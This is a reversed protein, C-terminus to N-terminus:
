SSGNYHRGESKASPYHHACLRQASRARALTSRSKALSVCYCAFSHASPTPDPRSSLFLQSQGSEHFSETHQTAVDYKPGLSFDFSTPGQGLPAPELRSCAALVLYTRAILPTTSFFSLRTWVDSNGGPTVGAKRSVVARLTVQPQVDLGLLRARCRALTECRFTPLAEPNPPAHARNPGSPSLGCPRSNASLLHTPSPLPKEPAQRNGGDGGPLRQRDRGGRDAREGHRARSLEAGRAEGRTEKRRGM